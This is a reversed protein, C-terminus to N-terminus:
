KRAEPSLFNIAPNQFVNSVIVDIGEFKTKFVEYPDGTKSGNIIMYFTPMGFPNYPLMCVKYGSEELQKAYKRM